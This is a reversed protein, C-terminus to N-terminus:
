FGPVELAGGPAIDKNISFWKKTNYKDCIEGVLRDTKAGATDIGEASEGKMSQLKSIDGAALADSLDGLEAATESLAQDYASQIPICEPPAPYEDFKKQIDACDDHMKKLMKGLAETPSHMESNPDDIGNLLDKIADAGGNVSLKEKEVLGQTLQDTTLKVRAIETQHLHELWDRIDDPMVVRTAQQQTIAPGTSGAVEINRNPNLTGKAVVNKSDPTGGPLILDKLAKGAGLAAGLIVFVVIVAIWIMDKRKQNEFTQSVPSGPAAAVAVPQPASPPPAVPTGCHMCFAAGAPLPKGCRPCYM